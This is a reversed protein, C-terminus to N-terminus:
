GDERGELIAQRKAVLRRISCRIAWTAINEVDCLIAWAGRLFLLLCLLLEWLDLEIM